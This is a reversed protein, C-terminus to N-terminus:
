KEVIRGIIKKSIIDSSIIKINVVTFLKEGAYNELEVRAGIISEDFKATPKQTDVIKAKLIMDLNSAGWRAYKRDEFDWVLSAIEREQDSIKTCIEDIEKPIKASKLIRHLILDAYRRIPSTFHSYDTFGLGFHEKKVSGYHAQQQSQIILEDVESELGVHQAKEQISIITTHIDHKLKAKIGLSNVDDILKSIKAQSPQEHIRFIGFNNLKKAAEQNALLMCEEILSHSATSSEINVDKFSEDSDLNLRIEDNRFDYGNELRKKRYKKTINYLKLYENEKDGIDIIEDIEEYTFRRKSNITAEFLTSSKVKAHKLDLKIKFVYALRDENPVLSCLNNSLEFPLMPLVKHPLYVSFSRKRAEQDLIDNEQVYASVDAIAVFLEQTEEDYYIADDYDKAGIPDITAFPLHTLDVRKQSSIPTYKKSSSVNDLRFLEDYLYLSIKEDIKPNSINGFSKVIENNQFILVDGENYNKNKYELKVNEKFTYLSNDKLYSLVSDNSSELVKLVKAKTKGKPNFIVKAIVIDNNYSGNLNDFEIYIKQASNGLKLIAIQNQLVIKGIKYKSNLKYQGNEVRVFDEIGVLDKLYKELM